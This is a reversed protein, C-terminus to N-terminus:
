LLALALLAIVTLSGGILGIVSTAKHRFRSFLAALAFAIGLLGFVEILGALFGVYEPIEAAGGTSLTVVLIVAFMWGLGVLSGCGLIVAIWPFTRAARQGSILDADDVMIDAYAGEVDRFRRYQRFVNYAFFLQLLAFISWGAEGGLLNSLAAWALTVGYIVYMPATRYYFSAGGVALLSLGWPASLFGASIIHLAGLGLSWFAWSRIDKLMAEHRAVIQYESETLSNEIEQPNDDEVEDVNTTM